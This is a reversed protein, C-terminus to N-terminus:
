ISANEGGCILTWRRIIGSAPKLSCVSNTQKLLDVLRQKNELDAHALAKGVDGVELAEGFHGGLSGAKKVDPYLEAFVDYLTRGEESSRILKSKEPKIHFMCEGMAMLINHGEPIADVKEVQLERGSQKYLEKLKGVCHGQRTYYVKDGAIIKFAFKWQGMSRELEAMEDFPKESPKPPPYFRERYTKEQQPAM